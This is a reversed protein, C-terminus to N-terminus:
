THTCIHTCIKPNLKKTLPKPKPNVGERYHTRATSVVACWLLVICVSSSSVQLALQLTLALLRQLWQRAVCRAMADDCWCLARLARWAADAEPQTVYAIGGGPRQQTVAPLTGALQRLTVQAACEVEPMLWADHAQGDAGFSLQQRQSAAAEVSTQGPTTTVAAASAAGATTTTSSSSSGIPGREGNGSGKTSKNNKNSSSSNSSNSSTSSSVGSRGNSCSSTGTHQQQQQQQQATEGRKTAQQGLLQARVRQASLTELRLLVGSLLSCAESHQQQQRVTDSISGPHDGAGGGGGSSSSSSRAVAGLVVDAWGPLGASLVCRLAALCSPTGCLLQLLELQAADTVDPPSLVQLLPVLLGRQAEPSASACFHELLKEPGGFATLQGRDVPGGHLQWPLDLEHAAAAAAAAAPLSSGSPDDDRGDHDAAGLSSAAAAAAVATTPPPPAVYLLNAAMVALQAHLEASWGYRVAADLLGAAAAPPLARLSDAVWTGAHTTLQMLCGLAARWVDECPERVQVCGRPTTTTTNAYPTLNDTLSVQYTPSPLNPLWHCCIHTHTDHGALNDNMRVESIMLLLEYLLQQLWSEWALQLATPDASACCGDYDDDDAAAPTETTGTLGTGPRTVYLGQATGGKASGRSSDLLPRSSAANHLPLSQLSLTTEAATGVGPGVSVALGETQHREQAQQPSQVEVAALMCGHLSLNYLVDFAAARHEPQPSALAQQLMRLALPAAADSGATLWLDILLKALLCGAIQGASESHLPQTDSGGGSGGVAAHLTPAMLPRVWPLAPNEQGVAGSIVSPAAPSPKGCILEVVAAVDADCLDLHPQDKYPAAQQFLLRTRRARAEAATAALLDPTAGAQSLPPPDPSCTGTITYGIISITYGIISRLSDCCVLHAASM